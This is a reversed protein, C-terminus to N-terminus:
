ALFIRRYKVPYTDLHCWGGSLGGTCKPHEMRLGLKELLYPQAMIYQKLLGKPDAIDIAKGVAHASKKAGGIAANHAPSRYGSSCRMPPQFGLKNVREILDLMNRKVDEPTTEVKHGNTNLVEKLTFRM